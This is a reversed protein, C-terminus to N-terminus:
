KTGKEPTAQNKITEKKMRMEKKLLDLENIREELTLLRRQWKDELDMERKDFESDRQVQTIRGEADQLKQSFSAITKKMDEVQANQQNLEQELKQKEGIRKLVGERDFVDTKKLYEVQDIAGIKLAEMYFQAEAYRNSPAMSGIIVVVDYKGVSPDGISQIDEGTYMDGIGIQIMQQEYEDYPNVIRIIRDKTLYNQIFDIMVRGVVRLAGYLYRATIGSRRSAWEDLLMTAGKTRPAGEPDGHSLGFAGAIFEADKKAVMELQFYNNPLPVPPVTTPAGYTSDFFMVSNPKSWDVQFKEVDAVSGTPLLIKNNTSATAHAIMLSRRHNVEQQLGRMFRTLSITYPNGYHRYSVPIVPYKETQLIERKALTNGVVLSKEVRTRWKKEVDNIYQLIDETDNKELSIKFEGFEDETMEKEIINEGDNYKVIYFPIQKKTFEHLILVSEDGPDSINDYLEIDFESAASSSFQIEKVAGKESDILDALEPYQNRADNASLYGFIYKYSADEEDKRRSNPDVVVSLPHLSDISVAGYGDDLNSNWSLYFYGKGFSLQNTVVDDVVMDADNLQWMYTCLESFLKGKKVDTDTRPLVKFSPQKGIIQSKQLEIQPSIIPIEIAAQGRDRLAAVQESTWMGGPTIFAMDDSINSRWQQSSAKYKEFRQLISQADDVSLGEGKDDIM